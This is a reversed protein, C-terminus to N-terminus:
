TGMFIFYCKKVRRLEHACGHRYFVFAQTRISRLLSGLFFFDVQSVVKVSLASAASKKGWVCSNSVVAERFVGSTNLWKLWTLWVGGQSIFVPLSLEPFLIGDENNIVAKSLVVSSCTLMMQHVLKYSQMNFAKHSLTASGSVCSKCAPKVCPEAKGTM